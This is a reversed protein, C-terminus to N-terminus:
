SKLKEYYEDGGTLGAIVDENSKGAAFQGLWFALGEPDVARDLDHFYDDDILQSDREQSEAIQEAIQWRSRGQALQSSWYAEGDADPRRGLLLNYVADIWAANTGGAKKFFEASAVLGSELQQDTLGADMQKAWYNVGEDDATRNLLKLYDPKIVWAVYYEDSHVIAQAVGGIAMGADLKEIWFALGDPDVARGLVDYYVAAIYAARAGDGNDQESAGFNVGGVSLPSFALFEGDPTLTNTQYLLVTPTHSPGPAVLLDDGLGNEDFREAVHVGTLFGSVTIQKWLTLDVMDNMNETKMQDMTMLNSFVAVEPLGPGAGVIVDPFAFGKIWGTSVFVGGRFAQDFALFDDMVHQDSARFVKVEPAGGPGRGAIIQIRGNGTVDDAAVTVGGHFSPEFALFDLLKSGDAGSFARIRPEGNPAAGEGTLIDQTGDADIDGAAVNVGGRFSSDYALFGQGLIGPLPNGNEDFVRVLPPGGAGAGVIIQQRNDGYLNAVAVNVGGHVLAPDFALFSTKLQGTSSDYVNVVPPEGAAAGTAYIPDNPVVNISAMMGNDSHDAIHCHYVYKGTFDNFAIRIVVQGPEGTVPNAAPLDLTDALSGGIVTEGQPDQDSPANPFSFDPIFVPTGDAPIATGNVSMVQFNNIHIHFAHIYPTANLITWQEVTGLQAQYVLNDPFQQGNILDTTDTQDFTVTRNQAIPAGTLDQFLNNPPSLHDPIQFPTVPTGQIQLTTLTATPWDGQGDFFKENQFYYTTVGAESPEVIFSYRKGPSMDLDQVPEPRTLPQGDQAVVYLTQKVGSPDVLALDYFQDNGIDAVSWVQAEGPAMTMTPNVLGNVTVVGQAPDEDSQSPILHTAPDVQFAKLALVHQTLGNLEPAGGDPRGVIVLGTLGDWIQPSVLGHVHPHYWYLGEPEDAPIDYHYQNDQGQDVHLFVNDSNGEPSVHLGHLHLDTQGFEGYADHQALPGDTLNNVLEVNVQDGPNFQLTPGPFLGNYTDANLATQGDVTIAGSQAVLTADLIGNQSQIVPPDVFPEGSM